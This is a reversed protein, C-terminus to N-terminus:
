AEAEARKVVERIDEWVGRGFVLPKGTRNKGGESPSIFKRQNTRESCKRHRQGPRM